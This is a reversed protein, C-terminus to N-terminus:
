SFLKWIVKSDKGKEREKLFGLVRFWLFQFSPIEWGDEWSDFHLVRTENIVLQDLLDNPDTNLLSVIDHPTKSCAFTTRKVM